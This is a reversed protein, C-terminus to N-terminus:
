ARMGASVSAPMGQHRGPGHAGGSVLLFVVVVVALVAVVIGAVKVWRPVGPPSAQDADTDTDDRYSRDTM